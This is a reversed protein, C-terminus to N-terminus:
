EFIVNSHSRNLSSALFIRQGSFVELLDEAPSSALLGKQGSFTMNMIDKVCILDVCILGINALFKELFRFIGRNFIVEM